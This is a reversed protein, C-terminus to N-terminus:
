RVKRGRGHRQLKTFTRATTSASSFARSARSSAELAARSVCAGRGRGARPLHPGPHAWATGSCVHAPTLGTGACIHAPTLRTGSDWHLHPGPHAWDRRLHPRPPGLGPASTRPSCTRRCRASWCRSRSSCRVRM